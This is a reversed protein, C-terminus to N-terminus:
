PGKPHENYAVATATIRIGLFQPFGPIAASAEATLIEASDTISIAVNHHGDLARAGIERGQEAGAIAAVRAAERAADHVAIQTLIGAIGAIIISLVTVMSAM